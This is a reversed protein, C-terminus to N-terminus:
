VDNMGLGRGDSADVVEIRQILAADVYDVFIPSVAKERQETLGLLQTM